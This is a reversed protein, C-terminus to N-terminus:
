PREERPMLALVALAALAGAPIAQALDLLGATIERPLLIVDHGAADAIRLLTEANPVSRGNEYTGYQTAKMGALDALATRSIGRATRIAALAVGIDAPGGLRIM